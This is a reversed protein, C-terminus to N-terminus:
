SRELPVLLASCGEADAAPGPLLVVDRMDTMNAVSYLEAADLGAGEAIGCHEAYGPPDWTAFVELCRRGVDFFREVDSSGREDLYERLRETRQTAFGRILERLQEGHSRGLERPPGSCDIRRLELLPV